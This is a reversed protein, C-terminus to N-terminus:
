FPIFIPFSAGWFTVCLIGKVHGLCVYFSLIVLTRLLNLSLLLPEVGGNCSPMWGLQLFYGSKPTIKRGRTILELDKQHPADINDYM